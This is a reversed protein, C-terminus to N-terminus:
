YCYCFIKYIYKNNNNPISLNDFLMSWYYVVYVVDADDCCCAYDGVKVWIMDDSDRNNVKNKVYDYHLYWIIDNSDSNSVDNKVNVDAGHALLLEM